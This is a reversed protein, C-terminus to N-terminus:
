KLWSCCIFTLTHTQHDSLNRETSSLNKKIRYFNRDLLAQLLRSIQPIQTLISPKCGLPSSIMSELLLDRPASPSPGPSLSVLTWGTDRWWWNVLRWGRLPPPQTINYRAWWDTVAEWWLLVCASAWSAPSATRREQAWFTACWVVESSCM